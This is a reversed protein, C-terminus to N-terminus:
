AGAGPVGLRRSVVATLAHVFFTFGLAGLVLAGLVGVIPSCWGEAVSLVALTAFMPLAAFEAAILWARRRRWRRLEVPDEPEDPSVIGLLYTVRAAFATLAALYAAGWLWAIERASM